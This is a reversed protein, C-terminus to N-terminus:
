IKVNYTISNYHDSTHFIIFLVSSSLATIKLSVQLLISLSKVTFRHKSTIIDFIFRQMTDGQDWVTKIDQYLHMDLNAIQIMWHQCQWLMWWRVELVRFYINDILAKYGEVLQNFLKDTNLRFINVWLWYISSIWTRETFVPHEENLPLFFIERTATNKTKNIIYMKRKNKVNCNSISGRFNQTDAWNLLFCDPLFFTFIHFYTESCHFIFKCLSFISFSFVWKM